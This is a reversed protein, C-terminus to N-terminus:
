LKFYIKATNVAYLFATLLWGAATGAGGWVRLAYGRLSILDPFILKLALALTLSNLLLVMSLSFLVGGAKKLDSQVPGTLVDGTHLLHFTLFFGTAGTFLPRYPAM